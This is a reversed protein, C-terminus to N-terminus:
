QLFSPISSLIIFFAYAAVPHGLPFSIINCNSIPLLLDGNRSFQSQFLGHIQRLASQMLSSGVYILFRSGGHEPYNHLCLYRKGKFKL